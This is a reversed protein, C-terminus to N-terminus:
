VVDGEFTHQQAQNAPMFASAFAAFSPIPVPLRPRPTPVAHLWLKRFWFARCCTLLKAIDVKDNLFKEGQGRLEIKNVKTGRSRQEVIQEMWVLALQGDIAPVLARCREIKESVM